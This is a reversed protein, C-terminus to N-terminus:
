FTHWTSVAFEWDNDLTPFRLPINIIKLGNPNTRQRRIITEFESQAFSPPYNSTYDNTEKTTEMRGASASSPDFRGNSDTINWKLAGPLESTLPQGKTEEIDDSAGETAARTVSLSQLSRRRRSSIATPTSVPIVRSRLRTNSSTEVNDRKHDAMTRPSQKNQTASLLQFQGAYWV